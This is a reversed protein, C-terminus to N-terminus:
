ASSKDNECENYGDEFGEGYIKDIIEELTDDNNKATKIQNIYHQIWKTKKVDIDTIDINVDLKKNKRKM